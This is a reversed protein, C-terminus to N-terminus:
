RMSRRIRAQAWDAFTMVSWPQGCGWFPEPEPRHVSWIKYNLVLPDWHEGTVRCRAQRALFDCSYISVAMATDDGLSKGALRMVAEIVEELPRYDPDHVEDFEYQNLWGDYRSVLDLLTTHWHGLGHLNLLGQLDYTFGGTTGATTYRRSDFGDGM